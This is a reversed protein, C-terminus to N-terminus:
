WSRGPLTKEARLVGPRRRVAVQDSLILGVSLIKLSPLWRLQQVMHILQSRPGSPADPGTLKPADIIHEIKLYQLKKRMDRGMVAKEGPSHYLGYQSAQIVLHLSPIDQSWCFPPSLATKGHRMYGQAHCWRAHIRKTEQRSERCANVLPTCEPILLAKQETTNTSSPGQPCLMSWVMLRMEMPLKPFLSFKRIAMSADAEQQQLVHHPIHSALYFEAKQTTDLYTSLRHTATCIHELPTRSKSIFPPFFFLHASPGEFM